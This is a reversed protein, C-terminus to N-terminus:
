AVEFTAPFRDWRSHESINKRFSKIVVSDNKVDEFFKYLLGNGEIEVYDINKPNTYAM